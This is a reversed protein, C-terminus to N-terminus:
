IISSEIEKVLNFMEHLNLITIKIETTNCFIEVLYQSSFRVVVSVPEKVGYAQHYACGGPGSRLSESKKHDMIKRVFSFCHNIALWCPKATHQANAEHNALFIYM